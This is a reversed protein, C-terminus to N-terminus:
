SITAGLVGDDFPYDSAPSRGGAVHISSTGIAVPPSQFQRASALAAPCTPSCWTARRRASGGTRTQLTPEVLAGAVVVRAISSRWAISLCCPSQIPEADASSCLIGFAPVTSAHPRQRFGRRRQYPCSSPAARRKPIYMGGSSSASPRASTSVIGLAVPHARLLRRRAPEDIVRSYPRSSGATLAWRSSPRMDLFSRVPLARRPRRLNATRTCSSSRTASSLSWAMVAALTSSTSAAIFPNVRVAAPRRHGIPRDGHELPDPGIGRAKRLRNPNDQPMQTVNRQVHTRCEAVDVPVRQPPPADRDVIDAVRSQGVSASRACAALRIPSRGPSTSWRASAAAASWGSGPLRM